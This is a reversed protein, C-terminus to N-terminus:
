RELGKMVPRIKRYKSKIRRHISTDISSRVVMLHIRVKNVQGRRVLRRILQDFNVSSWDASYVILTRGKYLDIGSGGARLQCILVDIEGRQFARQVDAKNKTRGTYVGVRLGHNVELRLRLEEIEPMFRCFVVVPKHSDRIVRSVRLLKADHLWYYGEEGLIFGGTIQALKVDRSITLPARIIEGGPIHVRRRKRMQLYVDRTEPPLSIRHNIVRYPPLDLAKDTLRICWPSLVEMFRKMRDQRFERKKNMWGCAICYRRTFTKWKDGLVQPRIFRMQAWVDMPSQELPTGSLGLRYEGFYRLRAAWRSAGSGRAKLRHCEDIAILTWRDGFRILRTILKPVQEYHLVLIRNGKTKKFTEWDSTVTVDSLHGMLELWTTEKNNKQSIVLGAFDDSAESLLGEITALTIWTKGTGQLAFLGVTKQRRTFKVADKQQDDLRSWFYGASM